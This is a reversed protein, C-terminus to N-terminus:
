KVDKVILITGARGHGTSSFISYYDDAYIDFGTRTAERRGFVLARDGNSTVAAVNERGNILNRYGEGSLIPLGNIDSESFSERNIGSFQPAELVRGNQKLEFVMKDQSSKAELSDVDIRLSHCPIYVPFKIAPFTEKVQKALQRNLQEFRGRSVEERLVIGPHSHYFSLDENGSQYFPNPKSDREKRVQRIMAENDVLDSTRLGFKELFENIIVQSVISSYRIKYTQSGLKQAHLQNVLGSIQYQTEYGNAKLDYSGIVADGLDGGLYSVEIKRGDLLEVPIGKFNTAERELKIQLDRARLNQRKRVRSKEWEDPDFLRKLSSLNIM